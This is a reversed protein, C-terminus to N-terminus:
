SVISLWAIPVSCLSAYTPPDPDRSGAGEEDGGVLANKTGMIMRRKQPSNKPTM